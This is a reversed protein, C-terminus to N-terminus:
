LGSSSHLCVSSVFKFTMLLCAEFQSVLQSSWPLLHVCFFSLIWPKLTLRSKQIWLVSRHPWPFSSSHSLTIQAPTYFGCSCLTRSALLSHELSFCIILETLHHQYIWPSWPQSLISRQSQMYTRPSRPLPLNWHHAMSLSRIEAAPSSEWLRCCNWSLHPPFFSPCVLM